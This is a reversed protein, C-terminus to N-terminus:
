IARWCRAVSSRGGLLRGELPFVCYLTKREGGAGKGPRPAPTERVLGSGRGEEQAGSVSPSGLGEEARRVESGRGAKRSGDPPHACPPFDEQKRRSVAEQCHGAGGPAEM